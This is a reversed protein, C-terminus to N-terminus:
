RSEKPMHTGGNLEAAIGAMNAEAVGVDFARNPYNKRLNYTGNSKSLDADIVVIREDEAMKQNLFEYLIERM